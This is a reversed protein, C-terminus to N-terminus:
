CAGVQVASLGRDIAQGPMDSHLIKLFGLHNIGWGCRCSELM